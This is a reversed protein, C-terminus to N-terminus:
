LEGEADEPIRIPIGMSDTATRMDKAMIEELVDEIDVHVRLEKEVLVNYVRRLEEFGMGAGKAAEDRHQDARLHTFALMILEKSWPCARVGRYFVDKARQVENHSLEFLVYLKWISLNSRATSTNTTTANTRSNADGIAKEFAARTSHLTSGAYVPRNLETFISFLHTTIPVAQTTAASQTPQTRSRTIDGIVGRVREEIRFRSENWAFLSLFITNHPFSSISEALITRIQAPKYISNTRMHYYLLRARSQHLLEAAFSKFTPPHVASASLKILASTYADLAKTLDLSHSLYLLISLCDAYAVFINAKQVGLAREQSDSLLSHIKLQETPSFAVQSSAPFEAVNVSHQPMSLLLYSARAMDRAELSEWIWTRWLSAADVADDGEASAKSMSISTAWVHDAATHNGSRSEMLAYSNYLRLSSPRKRLLSKAFKKAEKSNSAFELALTYEALDDNALDAEVLLRLSRRVWDADIDSHGDATAETWLQFSSFWSQREAFFTDVSHILNQHPFSLASLGGAGSKAVWSDITSSSSGMFENRLFNDGIWRSTTEINSPSALPPLHCFYLFGNLLGDTSDLEWVLPLFEELDSSIIVRYPDDDDSEDLSRAPVRTDCARERECTAWSAFISKPNLRSKSASVAPELPLSSRSKWGKAGSDGIRAVESEWFELFASMANERGYILSLEDPRFITSELVAQWLGAAHETFGAERIFLTLRLFLYYQVHVKEPGSPSSLNLRLCDVFTSMCREYTFDLFETQRFDLYKVWLSIFQPNSKLISQWQTSLKKTDWLKAGEELLRLLLRDKSANDGSKKLAKECLSIKIDALGMKEAYTLQRHEDTGTLLAEQHDILRLWAGVDRPNQEANRSLDVNLQRAESSLDGRQGEEESSDTEPAIEMHSPLSDEPKAKGLISRYAHKEDDSEPEGHVRHDHKGSLDLPLFDGTTDTADAISEPRVRLLKPKQKNLKSFVSKPKARTADTGSTDARIVLKGNEAADRDIKYRRPLGLVNGRGVRYYHPISYRHLTGYVLNHKDGKTDVIFLDAGNDDATKVPTEPVPEPAVDRVDEKGRHRHERREKRRERSRSRDCHRRHGRHRSKEDRHTHERSSRHPRDPEPPPPPPKFSAFRPIPTKEPPGVLGDRFHPM